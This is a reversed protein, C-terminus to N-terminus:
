TVPWHRQQCRSFLLIETGTDFPIVRWSAMRYILVLNSCTACSQFYSFIEGTIFVSKMTISYLIHLIRYAYLSVRWTVKISQSTLAEVEIHLPPGSPAVLSSWRFPFLLLCLFVTKIYDIYFMTSVCSSLMIEEISARHQSTTFSWSIWKKLQMSTLHMKM